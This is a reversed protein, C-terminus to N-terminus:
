EKAEANENGVGVPLRGIGVPAEWVAEGDFHAKRGHFIRRLAPKLTEVEWRGNLNLSIACRIMAKRAYTIGDADRQNYVDQVAQKALLLFYKKGLNKIEGSCDSWNNARIQEM